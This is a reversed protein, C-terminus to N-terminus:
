LSWGDDMRWYREALLEALAFDPEDDIDVAELPETPFMMPMRGVRNKSRAFGDRSFMYICSNEELLPDMDQTRELRSPDHNLPNGDTSWFRAHRATVSFLSDYGQPNRAFQEVARDITGSKLLPNTAHTQLFVEGEVNSLVHDIVANMPVDGHGLSEPRQLVRCSKGFEARADGLIEDSDSDLVIDDISAANILTTVIWHYLPKGHFSRMNKRVIRESGGRMPVIAVVPHTLTKITQNQFNLRQDTM